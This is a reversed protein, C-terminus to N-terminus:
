KSSVPQFTPYYMHKMKLQKLNSLSVQEKLHKM